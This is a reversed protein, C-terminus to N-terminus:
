KKIVKIFQAAYDIEWWRERQNGKRPHAHHNNHWEGILLAVYSNSSDDKTKHNKYTTVGDSHCVTNIFGMAFFSGVVGVNFCLLLIPDILLLILLFTNIVLIYYNHTFKIWPDRLDKVADWMSLNDLNWRFFIVRRFGLYKHAHPDKETDTHAHHSRHIVAYGAPSGM